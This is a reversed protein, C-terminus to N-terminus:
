VVATRLYYKGAPLDRFTFKGDADATVVRRAKQFGPSPPVEDRHKWKSGALNWWQTGITTVPDLTVARGAAKITHGNRQNMFAQGTLTGTGSVPLAKYEAEEAALAYPWQIPPETTACGVCALALGLFLGLKKM